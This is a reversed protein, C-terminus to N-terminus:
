IGVHQFDTLTLTISTGAGAAGALTANKGDFVLKQFTGGVGAADKAVTITVEFNFAVGATVPGLETFGALEDWYSVAPRDDVLAVQFNSIDQNSTGAVTLTIVDNEAAEYTTLLSADKGQYDIIPTGAAYQNWPMVITQAIAGLGFLVIASISLLTKKM